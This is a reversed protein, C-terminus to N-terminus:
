CIQHCCSPLFTGTDEFYSCQFVDGDGGEDVVTTLRTLLPPIPLEMGSGMHTGSGSAHQNQIEKIPIFERPRDGGLTRFVVKDEREEQNGRRSIPVDNHRSWSGPEAFPQEEPQPFYSPPPQPPDVNMAM